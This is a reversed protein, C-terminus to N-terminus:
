EFSLSACRSVLLLKVTAKIGHSDSLHLCHCTSSILVSDSAEPERKTLMLMGGKKWGQVRGEWGFYYIKRIYGKTNRKKWDEVSMCKGKELEKQRKTVTDRVQKVARDSSPLKMM